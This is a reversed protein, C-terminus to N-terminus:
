QLIHDFILDFQPEMFAWVEDPDFKPARLGMTVVGTLYISTISRVVVNIDVDARYSGERVGRELLAAFEISLQWILQDLLSSWPQTGQFSNTFFLFTGERNRAAFNVRSRLIFKITDCPTADPMKSLYDHKLEDLLMSQVALAMVAKSKFESKIAEVTVGSAVAIQAYTTRKVGKDEFCVAAAKIVKEREASPMKEQTM